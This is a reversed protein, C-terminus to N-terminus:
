FRQGTRFSGIINQHESFTLFVIQLFPLRSGLQLTWVGKCFSCVHWHLWPATHSCGGVMVPMSFNGVLMCKHTCLFCACSTVNTLSGSGTIGVLFLGRGSCIGLFLSPPSAATDNGQSCTCHMHQEWTWLGHIKYNKKFCGKTQPLKAQTMHFAGSAEGSRVSTWGCLPLGLHGHRGTIDNRPKPRSVPTRLCEPNRYRHQTATSLWSSTKVIHKGSRSLILEKHLVDRFNLRWQEHVSWASPVYTNMYM